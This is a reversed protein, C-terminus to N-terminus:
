DDEKRLREIFQEVMALKIEEPFEPLPIGAERMKRFANRRAYIEIKRLSITIPRINFDQLKIM